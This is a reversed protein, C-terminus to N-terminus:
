IDKNGNALNPKSQPNKGGVKFQETNEPVAPTLCLTLLGLLARLYDLNIKETNM